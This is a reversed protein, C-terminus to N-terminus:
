RREAAAVFSPKPRGHVRRNASVRLHERMAWDYAMILEHPTWAGIEGVRVGVLGLADRTVNLTLKRSPMFFGIKRM